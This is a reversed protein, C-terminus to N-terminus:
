SLEKLYQLLSVDRHDLGYKKLTEISDSNLKRSPDQAKKQLDLFCRPNQKELTELLIKLIGEDKGQDNKESTAAQLTQNM